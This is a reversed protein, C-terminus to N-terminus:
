LLKLIERILNRDFLGNNEFNGLTSNEDKIGKLMEISYLKLKKMCIHKIEPKSLWDYRNEDPIRFFRVSVSFQPNGCKEEYHLNLLTLRYYTEHHYDLAAM